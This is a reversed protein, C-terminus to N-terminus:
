HKTTIVLNEIHQIVPKHKERFRKRIPQTLYIYNIDVSNKDMIMLTENRGYTSPPVDLFRNQTVFPMKEQITMSAFDDIDKKITGYLEKLIANAASVDTENMPDIDKAIERLADYMGLNVVQFLTDLHESPLSYYTDTAIDALRKITEKDYKTLKMYLDM